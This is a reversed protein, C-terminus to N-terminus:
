KRILEDVLDNPKDFSKSRAKAAGVAADLTNYTKGGLPKLHGSALWDLLVSQPQEKGGHVSDLNVFKQERDGVDVTISKEHSM